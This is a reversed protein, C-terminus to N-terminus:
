EKSKLPYNNRDCCQIFSASSYPEDNGRWDCGPEIASRRRHGFGKKRHEVPILRKLICENYAKDGMKIM